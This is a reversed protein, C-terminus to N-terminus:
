TWDELELESLETAPYKNLSVATKLYPKTGQNTKLRTSIRSAWKQHYNAYNQFVLMSKAFKGLIRLM